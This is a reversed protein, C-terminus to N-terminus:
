ARFSGVSGFRRAGAERGHAHTRRGAAAKAHEANSYIWCYGSRSLLHPSSPHETPAGRRRCPGAHRSMHRCEGMGTVHPFPDGIRADRNATTCRFHPTLFIREVTPLVADLGYGDIDADIVPRNLEARNLAGVLARLDRPASEQVAQSLLVELRALATRTAAHEGLDAWVKFEPVATALRLYDSRYREAVAAVFPTDLWEDGFGIGELFDGVVFMRRFAWKGVAEVNEEFGRVASPSPVDSSYLHRVLQEGPVQWSGTGLM